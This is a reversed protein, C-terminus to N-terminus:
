ESDSGSSIISAAFHNIQDIYHAQMEIRNIHANVNVM